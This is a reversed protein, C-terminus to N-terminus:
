PVDVSILTFIHSSLKSMKKRDDTQSGQFARSNKVFIVGIQIVETTFRSELILNPKIPPFDLHIKTYNASFFIYNLVVGITPTVHVIIKREKSNDRTKFKIEKLIRRIKTM